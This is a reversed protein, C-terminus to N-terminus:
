GVEGTVKFVAWLADGSRVPMSWCNPLRPTPRSSWKTRVLFRRNEAESTWSIQWQQRTQASRLKGKDAFAFFNRQHFSFEGPHSEWNIQFARHFTCIRMYENNNIFVGLKLKCESTAILWGRRWWFRELSNARNTMKLIYVIVSTRGKHRCSQLM